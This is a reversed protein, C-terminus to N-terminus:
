AVAGMTRRWDRLLTLKLAYAAVEDESFTYRPDARTVWDWRLRLLLRLAVLPDAASTWAAVAADVTPDARGLEGAVAHVEAGSGLARARADALANRLAVEVGVWARLLASRQRRAVREAHRWYAEWVREEPSLLSESEPDVGLLAPPDKSAIEDATLVVPVVSSVEGALVSQRLRLDDELLIVNVLPAADGDAARARLEAPPVAPAAGLEGLPPLVTLLWCNRAYSM